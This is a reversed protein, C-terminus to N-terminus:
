SDLLKNHAFLLYMYLHNIVSASSGLLHISQARLCFQGSSVSGINWFNFMKYLAPIILLLNTRRISTLPLLSPEFKQRTDWGAHPGCWVLIGQSLHCNSMLSVLLSARFRLKASSAVFAAFSVSRKVIWSLLKVTSMRFIVLVMFTQVM